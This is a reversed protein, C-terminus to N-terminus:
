LKNCIEVVEIALLAPREEDDIIHDLKTKVIKYVRKDKRRSNKTVRELTSRKAIQQAALQRIQPSEDTLAINGLLPDRSIKKITMERLPAEIANAAVFELLASNRSGRIIKVREDYDPIPHKLGSILQFLRNQAAEKVTGNTGKMIITQLLDLDSLKNAAIARVFEDSDNMAVQNLTKQDSVPLDQVAKKRVELNGSQWKEKKFSSLLPNFLKNLISKKQVDKKNAM